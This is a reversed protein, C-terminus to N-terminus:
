HKTSRDAATNTALDADLDLSLSDGRLGEASVEIRGASGVEVLMAAVGRETQPTQPNLLKLGNGKAKFQVPLHQVAVLNGADDLVEAYVFVQVFAKVERSATEVRLRLQSPKGPTTVQHMAVQKGNIFAKATLTGAVFKDLNFSFPPQGAKMNLKDSYQDQDPAQRAILEDNRWLEVQEANSFVRVQLSSDATWDSAIFVM